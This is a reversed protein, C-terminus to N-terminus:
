FRLCGEFAEKNIKRTRNPEFGPGRCHFCPMKVVPGGAFDKVEKKITIIEKNNMATKVVPVVLFERM